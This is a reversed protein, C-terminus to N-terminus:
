SASPMLSLATCTSPSSLNRQMARSRTRITLLLTVMSQVIRSFTRALRRRRAFRMKCLPQAIHTGHPLDCIAAARAEALTGSSPPRNASASEHDRIRLQDAVRYEAFLCREATPRFSGRLLGVSHLHRLWECDAVDSKRGLVSRVDRVNVLVVDFGRAELIQFVPIWCVGTPDMAVMIVRCKSLRDSLAHLDSTFTPCNRSPM